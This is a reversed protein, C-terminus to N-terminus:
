SLGDQTAVCQLTILRCALMSVLPYAPHVGLWSRLAYVLAFPPLFNFRDVAWLEPYRALSGLYEEDIHGEKPDFTWGVWAYYFGRQSWSHPDDKTDCTRHHRRHKSAWWLPGQQYALCSIWALAFQTVRHVEFARHSFFRHLLM